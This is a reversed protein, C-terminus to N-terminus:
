KARVVTDKIVVGLQPEGCTISLTLVGNERM